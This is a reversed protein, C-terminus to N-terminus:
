TLGLLLFKLKGILLVAITVIMAGGRRWWSGEVPPKTAASPGASEIRKALDTVRSRITTHQQSGVPLYQLASEWEERAKALDGARTAADATAALQKLKDTHVLAGCAPCALAHPALETGCVRCQGPTVAVATVVKESM